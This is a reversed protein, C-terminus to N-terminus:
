RLVQTLSETSINRTLLILTDKVAEFLRLIRKSEM